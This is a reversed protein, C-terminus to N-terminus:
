QQVQQVAVTVDLAEEGLGHVVGRVPAAGTADFGSGLRIYRDDPCCRNAADFGVWGLGAVWIEAWAHSAEGSRLAERADAEQEQPPERGQSQRMGGMEQTQGGADQAEPALSGGSLLYGTVYRAPLGAIISAAVLAHTHDQCVGAGAALAEAATTAHNTRGPEYSIADAVAGALAHARDLPEREPSVAEALDTLAVDPRTARTTRLYAMPPIAERHGRLVGSTDSTEVEGAVDITLEEVPGLVSVTRLIDGAGDTLYGGFVAGEVSVEWSRVQQGAFNAPMLRHNQVVGRMPQGFTYRTVHRVSLRM